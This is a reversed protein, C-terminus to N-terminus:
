PGTGWPFPTATPLYHQIQEIKNELNDIAANIDRYMGSGIWVLVVFAVATAVSIAAVSYRLARTENNILTRFFLVENRMIKIDARLEFLMQSQVEVAKWIDWRTVEDPRMNINIEQNRGGDVSQRNNRGIAVNDAESDSIDGRTHDGM